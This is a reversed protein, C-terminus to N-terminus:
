NEKSIDFCRLAKRLEGKDIILQRYPTDFELYVNSGCEWLKVKPPDSNASDGVLLISVELM